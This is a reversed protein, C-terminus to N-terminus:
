CKLYAYFPVWVRYRGGGRSWGVLLDMIYLSDECGACPHYGAVENMSGTACAIQPSQCWMTNCFLLLLGQIIQLIFPESHPTNFTSRNPTCPHSPSNLALPAPQPYQWCLIVFDPTPLRAEILSPILSGLSLPLSGWCNSPTLLPSPHLSLSCTHTHTHTLTHVEREM